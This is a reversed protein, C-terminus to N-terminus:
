CIDSLFVYKLDIFTLTQIDQGLTNGCLGAAIQGDRVTYTMWKVLWVLAFLLLAYLSLAVLISNLILIYLKYNILYFTYKHIFNPIMTNNSNGTGGVGAPMKEQGTGIVHNITIKNGM